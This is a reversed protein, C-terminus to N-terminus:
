TIHSELAFPYTQKQRMKEKFRLDEFKTEQFRLDQEKKHFQDTGQMRM